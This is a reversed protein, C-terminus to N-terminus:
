PRVATYDSLVPGTTTRRAERLRAARLAELIREPAVCGEITAWYYDVMEVAVRSGGTLRAVLPFLRRMCFGLVGCGWASRPRSIELILVRGGPQLVRRFEAFLAGLDAVHRLAYGMTVYDFAGDRFPLREGLGQVLAVGQDRRNERLMGQSPDLGVVADRPVGCERLARVM